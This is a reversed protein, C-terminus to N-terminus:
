KEQRIQEVMERVADVIIEPQEFIIMHGSKEAVVRKGRTSKTALDKQLDCWASVFQDVWEQSGAKKLDSQNGATIVTLPKNGLKNESERLQTCSDKMLAFEASTAKIRKSVCQETALAEKVNTPLPLEEKANQNKPLLHVMLRIFGIANLFLLLPQNFEVTTFQKPLKESQDEHASDVLVIGAVENPYMNAYLRANMGGFSHGVLIYPGPIGANKLLTHLEQVIHKSTRSSSSTDSWGMGARDYSCVRTFKAIEPQVLSWGLSSCGIGADLVVTPGGNGTCNIHLRYGGIDAMKGPAPYRWEDLKTAILQYIAGFLLLCVILVLLGIFIRLIWRLIM